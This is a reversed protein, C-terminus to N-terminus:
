LAPDEAKNEFQAILDKLPEIDTPTLLDYTQVFFAFHKFLHNLHAAAGRESMQKYHHYYVHAYVRFFRKFITKCGQRFTPPYPALEATPLFSEDAMVGDAWLMLLEMYRRAPVQLPEKVNVGDAWAWEYNEGASMAPCSEETCLDSICGTLLNMEEFFEVLKVALWDEESFGEPREIEQKLSNSGLTKADKVLRQLTGIRSGDRVPFKKRPGVLSSFLNTSQGTSGQSSSCAPIHGMHGISPSTNNNNGSTPAQGSGNTSSSAAIKPGVTSSGQGSAAKVNATSSASTGMPEM